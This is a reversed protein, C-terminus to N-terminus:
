RERLATSATTEPMINRLHSVGATYLEIAADVDSESTFRGFSFRIASQALQDPLGLARLVYSSEGSQSNCASGTAVCLPELTLMLSEGDIGDISVNLIGPFAHGPDGNRTIGHVDRIGKWLRANLREVHALDNAQCETAIAAAVGFGAVQHVALTGPRLRREQGGGHLLPRIHCEPRDALYLAGIGQPGYFKHATLSMLDVPLRSLDIPLKGASQAADCHFLVGHRRCCEGIQHIDQIVGTENNVHMISVLQTDPRIAAELDAIPLLGDRDPKLWTVQFGERELSAFCDTVAKHETRMSVLHRGRHARFQAAGTIALNDSETAGSTFILNRPATNLLGAVQARSREVLAHSARGAVHLSAPNAFAGGGRLCRQMAEAVAPDVTTTAADDLYIFEKRLTM